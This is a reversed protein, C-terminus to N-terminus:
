VIGTRAAELLQARAEREVDAGPELEAAVEAEGDGTLAVMFDPLTTGSISLRVGRSLVRATRGPPPEKLTRTVAVLNLVVQVARLRRKRLEEQLRERETPLDPPLRLNLAPRKAMEELLARRAEVLIGSKVGPSEEVSKVIVFYRGRSNAKGKGKGKAGAAV